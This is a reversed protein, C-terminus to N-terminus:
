PLYIRDLRGVLEIREEVMRDAAVYPPVNEAQARGLLAKLLNGVNACRRRARDPDFGSLEDVVQLLGGANIIYDPVYLIGREHLMMGHRPEALQNNAAGGVIACKLRPITEDNLIGGMACPAFIDADVDYIDEPDVVVVPYKAALSSCAEHNVDAIIIECGEEHLHRVLHSGVKGVGQVAVTRGSLEPSGWVTSAAARLGHWVAFATLISTDGSGGAYEPLAVFWDSEQAAVVFDDYTTGLDTGTIFRGRLGEVFRGFARFLEESKDSRPDGWIVSKGGGYNCQTVGSKYTMGRSLRLADALLDEENEYDYMRCGGLAPGLTTDHIAIVSRLGSAEDHCFVLQEHGHEEMQEFVKV